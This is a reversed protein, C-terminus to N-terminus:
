NFETKFELIRATTPANKPFFDYQRTEAMVWFGRSNNEISVNETHNVFM